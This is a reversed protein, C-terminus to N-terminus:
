TRGSDTWSGTCAGTADIGRTQEKLSRSLLGAGATSSGPADYDAESWSVTLADSPQRTTGLPATWTTRPGETDAGLSVHRAAGDTGAGNRAIVDIASTGTAVTFGLAETYPSATDQSPLAPTPTWNTTPSLGQFRVHAVGSVADTASGTVTLTAAASPRFYCVGNLAAQWVGTGTCTADPPNPIAPSADLVITDSIGTGTSWNGATDQFQAYVTRTGDAGAALTWSHSSAYPYTTWASGDNSFRMQSVPPSLTDTASVTLTVAPSGTYTAGANISITGTPATTDLVITDSVAASTNGNADRFRAWVTKTGDGAALTWSAGTAYAQPTSYTVNDNSFQMQSVGAIADTAATALTVSTTTTYAAGNNVAVSTGTPATKDYTITQSTGTGDLTLADCNAGPRNDVNSGAFSEPATETGSGAEGDGGGYLTGCDSHIFSLDGITNHNMDAQYVREKSLTVQLAYEADTDPCDTTANGKVYDTSGVAYNCSVSTSSILAGWDFKGASTTVNWALGSYRLYATCSWTADVDSIYGYVDPDTIRSVATTSGTSGTLRGTFSPNSACFAALAPKPAFLENAVQVIGAFPSSDSTAPVAAPTATVAFSTAALVAALATTRLRGALTPRTTM